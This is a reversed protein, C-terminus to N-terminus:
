DLLWVVCDRQVPKIAVRRIRGDLKCYLRLEAGAARGLRLASAPSHPAMHAGDPRAGLELERIVKCLAWSLDEKQQILFSGDQRNGLLEAVRGMRRWQADDFSFSGVVHAISFNGPVEEEDVCQACAMAELESNRPIRLPFCQIRSCGNRLVFNVSQLFSAVTQGPIGFILSVEYSVNRENLLAMGRRVSDLKNRRGIAQMEGEVVTQLGLELHINSSACLEVFERGRPTMLNEFRAQVSFVTDKLQLMLRAIDLYNRGSNFTADLVNIKKIRHKGLFALEDEIRAMPFEFVNKNAANRWECFGCRSACGRKTEWRLMDVPRDPDLPITGDLYISPLREFDPREELVRPCNPHKELIRVLSAEAYGKLFYRVDPYLADLDQSATATIQYGGLILEGRFGAARLLPVLELVLRESWAYVALAIFDLRELDVGEVADACVGAATVDPREKLNFPMHALSLQGAAALESGSLFALLSAISYSPRPDHQRLIDFSIILLHRVPSM